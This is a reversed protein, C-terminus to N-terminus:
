AMVRRLANNILAQYDGDQRKFWEIIDADIFVSQMETKPYRRKFQALEETTQIPCDSFDTNEFVMIEAFREESVPPLKKVEDLTM